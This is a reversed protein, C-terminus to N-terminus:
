KYRLVLEEPSQAAHTHEAGAFVKLKTFMQRGLSNKPLMGKVAKEIIREPHLEMMQKYTVTKENGVYGTHRFYDKTEAKKGTLRIKDANIVIVFDGNDYHPAYTPKHKGKLISAVQTSFRGLVMDKADVVFWKRDAILQEANLNETNV